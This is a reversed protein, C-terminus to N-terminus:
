GGRRECGAPSEHGGRRVAGGKPGVLHRVQLHPRGMNFPGTGVLGAARASPRLVAALEDDLYGHWPHPAPAMHYEGEWVEDHGDLGLTRRREVLAEMEAPMPGLLVTRM